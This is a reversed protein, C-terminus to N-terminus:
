LVGEVYVYVADAKECAARALGDAEERYARTQVADSMLEVNILVNLRAGQVAAKAFVAAVGADTVALRSGHHAMFECSDLVAACQRMIELPVECAGTLAAQLANEKAAAEEPTAKPMKYAAAVPAFAAADESVLAVLRARAADLRDLESRMEAEVEAYRPKGATLNGVMSGLAAALAGCYAAAGGGGPTPAKSALEDLFSTDLILGMLLLRLRSISRTQLTGVRTAYCSRCRAILALVAEGTSVGRLPARRM